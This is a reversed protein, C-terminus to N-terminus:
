DIAFLFVFTQYFFIGQLVMAENYVKDLENIFLFFM